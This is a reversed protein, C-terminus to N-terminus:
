ESAFFFFVRKLEILFVKTMKGYIMKIIKNLHKIFTIPKIGM